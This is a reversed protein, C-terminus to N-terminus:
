RKWNGQDLSKSGYVAGSVGLNPRSQRTTLLTRLAVEVAMWLMVSAAEFEGSRNLQKSRSLFKEIDELNDQARSAWFVAHVLLKFKWNPKGVMQKLVRVKSLTETSKETVKDVVLIEDGRKLVLDPVYGAPLEKRLLKPDLPQFGEDLFEKALRRTFEQENHAQSLM